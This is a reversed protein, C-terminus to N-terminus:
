IANDHDKNNDDHETLMMLLITCSYLASFIFHTTCCFRKKHLMQSIDDVYVCMPMLIVQM